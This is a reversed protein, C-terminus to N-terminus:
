LQEVKYGKQKLLQILGDPGALHLGGVMVVETPADKLMEEIRPIWNNNRNSIIDAYTSPFEERLEKLYSKDMTSLNGSRWLGKLTKMETHLNKLEELTYMVMEDEQGKGMNAIFALQEDLSELHGIIKGDTTAKNSYYTDVGYQPEMGLRQYEQVSLILSAGAPTFPMFNGIPLNQKAMYQELAAYTKPKLLSQLTSGSPASIAQIFKMQFTPTQAAAMDTEFYVKTAAQYAQEYEAPLPHDTSNLMHFTGAIYATNSGKSVKFVSSEASINPSSLAIALAATTTKFLSWPSLKM